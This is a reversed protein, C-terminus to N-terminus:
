VKKRILHKKQPQSTKNPYALLYHMKKYLQGLKQKHEKTWEESKESGDLKEGWRLKVLKVEDERLRTLMEDVQSKSYLKFISYFTNKKNTKENDAKEEYIKKIYLDYDTMLELEFLRKIIYNLSEKLERSVTAQSTGIITKIEQQTKPINDYFGFCHKVVERKREPLEEIVSYVISYIDKEEYDSTIDLDDQLRDSLKLKNEDSDRGNHTDITADLSITPVARTKKIYLIIEGYIMKSAYSSFETGRNIDYRDVAKILGVTGVQFLDDDEGCFTTKLISVILRLNHEIIKERANLDGNIMNQFLRIQEEKNLQPPFKMNSIKNYKVM